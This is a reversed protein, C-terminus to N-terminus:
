NAKPNLKIYKRKSFGEINIDEINTEIKKSTLTTYKRTPVINKKSEQRAQIAIKKYYSYVKLIQHRDM